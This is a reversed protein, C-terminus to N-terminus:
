PIASVFESRVAEPVNVTTSLSMASVTIAVTSETDVVPLLKLPALGSSLAARLAISVTVLVGM